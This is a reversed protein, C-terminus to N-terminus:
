WLVEPARLREIEAGSPGLRRVRPCAPLRFAHGELPVPHAVTVFFARM